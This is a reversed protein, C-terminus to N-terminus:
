AARPLAAPSPAAEAARGRVTALRAAAARFAPSRELDTRGAPPPVRAALAARDVEVLGLETLVRLARGAPAPPGTAALADALGRGDRLARYLAAAPARLECTRELVCLAFATEAQGWALHVTAGRAGALAVRGAALPPDLAVVHAYGAALGPDREIASWSCVAFGGLRGSLHRRRARADACVVLVPDGSAVLAGIIGAAGGGRRDRPEGPRPDPEAGRGPGAVALELPADLEALAAAVDDEPEGVLAIPGPDPPQACRLVLRPEVAGNWENLELGFTADLPGDHGVLSRTTPAPLRATSFAVARARVGGAEVTFRIHKGEEGMPRADGLRAAPVLLSVEPNGTGFPALRELQEALELGLEDGAVVADVRETPVLDEASLVAAAHACFAARFAGVAERAVTCGAAARHGGHRLLHEASADLGALLDFAPISRGSGTGEAGELAILVCPRHHREAIRSAVIGIVGPHWGEGALVYAPSDGTEAVQAEAEFLIRTETHRREHNAADLEAAISEARAEDDTLLLELGADARYLRGAANIRPALRFGISRADLAGPDVKAVRMLARLGPRRTRALARLGARVLRRNEGWLPVCDAVTALAVLDLDEDAAAPDRAAGALLAAALKYAVGTACLDACPYGCLAPHVLPADPLAGDARPQHHDTVVVDMGARRALAVEEVATVACDATLLLRTGRAALRDVTAASLGYGDETRSPLYWDVRAGLRRLARVLIATSCVGDADYDGHVTIPSGRRVHGLVAEVARDIGSFASFPHEDRADLWARAAAPDGLGRRVLVQGLVFGVGLERQLALVDAVPCPPIHLRAPV